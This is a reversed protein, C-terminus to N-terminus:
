LQTSISWKDHEVRGANIGSHLPRDSGLKPVSSLYKNVVKTGFNIMKEFLIM